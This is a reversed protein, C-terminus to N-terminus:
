GDVRRLLGVTEEVAIDQQEFRTITAPGDGKQPGYWGFQAHNGGAIEVVETSDPLRALAQSVETDSVLHDQSGTLLVVAIESLSLDVGGDPYAAWLALGGIEPNQSVYRAAMAGGLSHGGMAWNAIQPFDSVVESARNQSLIALNFPMRVVVVLYGQAAIRQAIPAYAEPEVRAGPYFILGTDPTRDRPSFSLWPETEVRVLETSELAERATAMTRLPSLFVQYGLGIALAMVALISWGVIRRSRM